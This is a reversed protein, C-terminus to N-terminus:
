QQGLLWSEIASVAEELSYSAAKELREGELFEVDIEPGAGAVQCQRGAREFWPPRDLPCTGSIDAALRERLRAYAKHDVNGSFILSHQDILLESLRGAAQSPQAFWDDDVVFGGGQCSVTPMGQRSFPYNPCHSFCLEDHSFYFPFDRIWAPLERLLPLFPHDESAELHRWEAQNTPFDPALM